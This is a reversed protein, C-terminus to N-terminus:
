KVMATVVNSKVGNVMVYFHNTADINVLFEAVGNGYNSPTTEKIAKSFFFNKGNAEDFLQVRATPMNVTVRIMATGPANLMAPPTVYVKTTSVTLKVIASPASPTGGGISNVAVVTFYYSGGNMLGAITAKTVDGKTFITKGKGGVLHATVYYGVIASNGDNAPPGWVVTASGVGPSVQPASPASPTSDAVLSVEVPASLVSTSGSSNVSKVYLEVTGSGLGDLIASTGPVLTQGNLNQATSALSTRSEFVEYGQLPSSGSSSPGTWSLHVFSGNVFAKLGSPAGPPTVNLEPTASVTNSAVSSTSAESNRAIVRFYYQDGPTLGTSTFSTSADISTTKSTNSASSGREIVYNTPAAAGNPTTWSLKVSTASSVAATISPANPTAVASVTIPASAVSTGEVTGSTNTTEAEVSYTAASTPLGPLTETLATVPNGVPKGNELLQYQLGGIAQDAPAVWSFTATGSGTVSASLGTPTGPTPSATTISVPGDQTSSGAQDVAEVAYSYTDSKVPATWGASTGTAKASDKFTTTGSAVTAIPTGDRLVRYDYTTGTGGTYTPAAWTLTNAPSDTSPQTTVTLDNPASPASAVDPKTSVTNSFSSLEGAANVAEVTFTYFHATNLGTILDSTAGTSSVATTPPSVDETYSVRYDVVHSNGSQAPAVWTLKVAGDLPTVQVFQPPTPQASAGGQTSAEESVPSMGVSNVAKVTFYEVTGDPVTLTTSGGSTGSIPVSGNVPTSSEAGPATGEYVNFGTVDNSSGSPENWVLHVSGGSAFATVDSPALPTHGTGPTASIVSSPTSTGAANTATVEFFYATGDTLGTIDHTTPPVSESTPSVTVSSGLATASTGYSITYSTPTDGTTPATWALTVGGVAPSATLGGPASPAIPAATANAVGSPTGQGAANVAVVDFYYTGTTSVTVTDSTGSVLVRGNTPYSSGIVNPTSSDYINYGVVSGSAATWSLKIRNAGVDTATLGSPAGPPTLTAATADPVVRLSAAGAIGPIGMTTMATAVGAIGLRKLTRKKQDLM